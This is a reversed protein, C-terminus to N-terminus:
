EEHAYKFHLTRKSVIISDSGGTKNKTYVTISKYKMQTYFYPVYGKSSEIIM